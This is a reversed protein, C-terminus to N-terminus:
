VGEISNKRVSFATTYGNADITNTISTVFYLGSFLNGFNTLEIIMGLLVEPNGIITVSGTVLNDSVRNLEAKALDDAEQQSSFTKNEVTKINERSLRLAIQGATAGSQNLKTEQGATAKGVIDIKSDPLNGRVEVGTYLESANITPSFQMVDKEWRFEIKPDRTKRPDIFFLTGRSVFFEYGVRKSIDKLFDILTVPKKTIINKPYKETEDVESKLGVSKAIRKVIKDYTDGVEPKIAKPATSKETLRSHSKDFGVITTRPIDGAFGSTSLTKIEGDFMVDLKRDFEGLSLKKSNTVYGMKIMLQNGIMLMPNGLWNFEQNHPNFRDSLVLNFQAPSSLQETVQVSVTSNVLEKKSEGNILIDFQPVYKTLDISVQQL